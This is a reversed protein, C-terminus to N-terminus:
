KLIRRMQLSSYRTMSGWLGTDSVPHQQSVSAEQDKGSKVGRIYLLGQQHGLLGPTKANWDTMLGHQRGVRGEYINIGSLRGAHGTGLDTVAKAEPLALRYSSSPLM